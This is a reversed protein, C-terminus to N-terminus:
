ILCRNGLVGSNSSIGAYLVFRGEPSGLPRKANVL